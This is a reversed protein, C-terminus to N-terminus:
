IRDTWIQYNGGVQYVKNGAEDIDVFSMDYSRHCLLTSPESGPPIGTIGSFDLVADELGDLILQDLNHAEVQDSSVVRIDVSTKLVGENGFTRSRYSVGVSYIVFPYSSDHLAIGEHFGDSGVASKLDTIDRLARVLAQKIPGVGIM